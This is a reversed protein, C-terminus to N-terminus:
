FHTTSGGNESAMIALSPLWRASIPRILNERL